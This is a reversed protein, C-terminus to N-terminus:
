TFIRQIQRLSKKCKRLLSKQPTAPQPHRGGGLPNSPRARKDEDTSSRMTVYGGSNGVQTKTNKYKHMQIHVFIGVHVYWGSKMSKLGMIEVGQQQGKRGGVTQM